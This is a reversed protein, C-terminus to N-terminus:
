RFTVPSKNRTFIFLGSRDIRKKGVGLFVSTNQLKKRDSNNQSNDINRPSKGGESM